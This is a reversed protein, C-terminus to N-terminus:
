GSFSTALSVLSLRSNTMAALDDEPNQQLKQTPTINEV